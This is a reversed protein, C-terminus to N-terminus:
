PSSIMIISIIHAPLGGSAAPPRLPVGPQPDRGGAGDTQQLPPRAQGAAAAPGLRLLLHPRRRALGRAAHEGRGGGRARQAAGAPPLAHGLGAGGPRFM